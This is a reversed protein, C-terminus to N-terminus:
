LYGLLFCIVPALLFTFFGALADDLMIGTGGQCERDLKSIPWPKVIDFFRFLVFTLPVFLLQIEANEMLRFRELVPIWGAGIFFGVIEDFVIAKHDHSDLFDSTRACLFIGIFFFIVCLLFYSTLSFVPSYFFWFFAIAGVLTGATGPGLPALGSGLGLAILHGPDKLMKVSPQKSM